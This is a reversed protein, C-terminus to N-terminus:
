GVDVTRASRGKTPLGREVEDASGRWQLPLPPCSMGGWQGGQGESREPHKAFPPALPPSTTTAHLHTNPTGRPSVIGRLM